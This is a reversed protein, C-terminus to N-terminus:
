FSINLAFMTQLNEILFDVQVKYFIAVPREAIKDQNAGFM